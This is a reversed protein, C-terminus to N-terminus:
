QITKGQQRFRSNSKCRYVISSPRLNLHNKVLHVLEAFLKVTPKRPNVLNTRRRGVYVSCFQVNRVMTIENVTFYQEMHETYEIWSATVLLPVPVQSKSMPSLSEPIHSKPICPCPAQPRQVRPYPSRPICPHPSTLNPSTFVHYVFLVQIKLQIQLAPSNTM